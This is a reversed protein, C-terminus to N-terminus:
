GAYTVVCESSWTTAVEVSPNLNEIVLYWEGAYGMTVDFHASTVNGTAYQADYSAGDIQWIAYANSDM